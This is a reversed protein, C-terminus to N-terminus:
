KTEMQVDGLKAGNRRLLDAIKDEHSLLAVDLATHGGRTTKVNVDAGLKILLAVGDLYGWHVAYMLPTSGNDGDARANVDAGHSVLISIVDVTRQGEIIAQEAQANSRFMCAIHLPTTGSSDKANVDAGAVILARAIDAYRGWIHVGDQSLLNKVAAHHLATFGRADHEHVADPNQKLIAEVSDLRGQRAAQYINTPNAGASPTQSTHESTACGTMLVLGLSLVTISTLTKM